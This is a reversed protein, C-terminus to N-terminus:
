TKNENERRKMAGGGRVRCRGVEEDRIWKGVKERVETDCWGWEKALHHIDEPLHKYSAAVVTNEPEVGYHDVYGDHIQNFADADVWEYHCGSRGDPYPIQIKYRGNIEEM